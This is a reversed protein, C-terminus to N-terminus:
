YKERCDKRKIERGAIKIGFKHNKWGSMEYSTTKMSSLNAPHCNVAKYEKGLNSGTWQEMYSELHQKKIQM